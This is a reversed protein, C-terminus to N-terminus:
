ASGVSHVVARIRLNINSPFHIVVYDITYVSLTYSHEKGWCTDQLQKVVKNEIEPRQDAYLTELPEFIGFARKVFSKGITHDKKDPLAVLVAFRTLHDIITLAYSCKLETPSVSETKYKVIDISVRQFPPDITLPYTVQLYSPGAIRHKVANAPMATRVGLKSTTIYRRSGFDIASKTLRINTLSIDM